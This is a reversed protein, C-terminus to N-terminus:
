RQGRHRTSQRREIKCNTGCSLWDRWGCWFGGCLRWSQSQRRRSPRLLGDPRNYRLSNLLSRMSYSSQLPSTEGLVGLTDTIRGNKPIDVRELEKSKMVALEAWGAAGTAYSGIPFDDSKSVKIVGIAAGRM